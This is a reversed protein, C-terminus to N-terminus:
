YEALWAIDGCNVDVSDLDGDILGRELIFFYHVFLLSVGQMINADQHLGNNLTHVDGDNM